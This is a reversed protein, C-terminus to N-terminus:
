EEIGKWPTFAEPKLPLITFEIVPLVWKYNGFDKSSDTNKLLKDLGNLKAITDNALVHFRGQKDFALAMLSSEASLEDTIALQVMGHYRLGVQDGLAKLIVPASVSGYDRFSTEECCAIAHIQLKMGNRYEMLDSLEIIPVGDTPEAFSIMPEPLDEDSYDYESSRWALSEEEDEGKESEEDDSDDSEDDDLTFVEYDDYEDKYKELFEEDMEVEETDDDGLGAEARLEILAQVMFFQQQSSIGLLSLISVLQDPKPLVLGHSFQSIAASSLGLAQAIISQRIGSDQIVAYFQRAFDERKM